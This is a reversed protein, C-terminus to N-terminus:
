FTNDNLVEVGLFKWLTGDPFSCDLRLSSGLINVTRATWDAIRVPFNIDLKESVRINRDYAGAVHQVNRSIHM